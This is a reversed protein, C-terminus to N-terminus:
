IIYLPHACIVSEFHEFFWLEEVSHALVYGFIAITVTGSKRCFSHRGLKTAWIALSIYPRFVNDSINKSSAMKAFVSFFFNNHVRNKEAIEAVVRNTKCIKAEKFFPPHNLHFFLNRPRTNCNDLCLVDHVLASM